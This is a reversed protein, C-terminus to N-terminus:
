RLSCNFGFSERSEVRDCCLSLRLGLGLGFCLGPFLGGGRLGCCGCNVTLHGAGVFGRWPRRFLQLLLCSLLSCEVLLSALDVPVAWTEAAHCVARAALLEARGEATEDERLFLRLAPGAEEARRAM